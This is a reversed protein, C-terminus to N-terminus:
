KGASRVILHQQQHHLELPPEVRLHDLLGLKTVHVKVVSTSEPTNLLITDRPVHTNSTKESGKSPESIVVFRRATNEWMLIDDAFYVDRLRRSVKTLSQHGGSRHLELVILHFQQRGKDIEKVLTQRKVRCPPDRRLFRQDM